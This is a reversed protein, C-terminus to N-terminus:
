AGMQRSATSTSYRPWVIWEIGGTRKPRDSGPGSESRAPLSPDGAATRCRRTSEGPPRSSAGRTGRGCCAARRGPSRRCEAPATRTGPSRPRAARLSRGPDPAATAAPGTDRRGRFARLRGVVRHHVAPPLAAETVVVILLPKPLATVTVPAPNRSFLSISSKAADGPWGFWNPRTSPSFLAIAGPLRISDDIAGLM